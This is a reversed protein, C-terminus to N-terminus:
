RSADPSVTIGFCIVDAAIYDGGDAHGGVYWVEEGTSISIRRVRVSSEPNSFQGTISSLACITNSTEGLSIVGDARSNWAVEKTIVLRANAPTDDGEYQAKLNELLAIVQPEIDALPIVECSRALISGNSCRFAETQRVVIVALIAFVGVSIAIVWQPIKEVNFSIM